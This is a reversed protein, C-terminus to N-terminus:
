KFKKKLNAFSGHHEKAAKAYADQAQEETDFDGLSIRGEKTRIMARWKGNDSRKHVGKEGKQSAQNWANEQVSAERLNSRRNDLKNGNIHDCVKDESTSSILRHLPTKKGDLSIYAYGDDEFVGKDKLAHYVDEDVLVFSGKDTKLKFESM